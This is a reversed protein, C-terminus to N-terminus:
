WWVSMGLGVWTADDETPPDDFRISWGATGTLSVRQAFDWSVSVTAAGDVLGDSLYWAAEDPSAASPAMGSTFGLHIGPTVSWSRALALDHSASLDLYFGQVADVDRYLTAQIANWSVGLYLEHTQWDEIGPAVDSRPNSYYIYGATVVTDGDLVHELALTFDQEFLTDTWTDSGHDDLAVNWWGNLSVTTTESAAWGVTISPQLSAKDDLELGRWVYASVLDVSADFSVDGAGVPVAVLVMLCVVFGRM